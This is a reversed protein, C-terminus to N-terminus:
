ISDDNAKNAKEKNEEPECYSFSLYYSHWTYPTGKIHYIHPWPM